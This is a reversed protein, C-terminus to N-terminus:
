FVHFVVMSLGTHFANKKGRPVRRKVQTLTGIGSVTYGAATVPRQKL